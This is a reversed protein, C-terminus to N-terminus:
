PYQFAASPPTFSTGSYRAYKTLRISDLNGKFCNTSTTSVWRGLKLGYQSGFNVVGTYSYTMERVGNVYGSITNGSRVIAFHRWTGDNVITTGFVASANGAKFGFRNRTATNTPGPQAWISVGNTTDVSPNAGYAGAASCIWVPYTTQTANPQIFWELTWDETGVDLDPAAPIRIEQTTSMSTGNFFLSGGFMGPTTVVQMNANAGTVSLHRENVSADQYNGDAQYLFLVLHSYPDAQAQKNVTMTFVRDDYKIGTAARLTFSRVETPTSPNSVTGSVTNGSLTFGAPLSGIVSYTIPAGIRSTAVFSQSFSAFADYTGLDSATTWVPTPDISSGRAFRTFSRLM